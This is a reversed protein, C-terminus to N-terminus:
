LFELEKGILKELKEVQAPNVQEHADTIEQVHGNRYLDSLGFAQVAKFLPSVISDGGHIVAYGDKVKEVRGRPICAYSDMISIPNIKWYQSLINCVVNRWFSFHLMADFEDTFPEDTRDYWFETMIKPTPIMYFVGEAPVSANKILKEDSKLNM